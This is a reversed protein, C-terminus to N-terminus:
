DIGATKRLQAYLRTLTNVTTTLDNIRICDQQHRDELYACREQLRHVEDLIPKTREKSTLM